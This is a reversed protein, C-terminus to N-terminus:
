IGNNIRKIDDIVIIDKDRFFALGHATIFYIPTEIKTNAYTLASRVIFVWKNKLEVYRILEDKTM